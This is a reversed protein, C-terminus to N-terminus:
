TTLHRLLGSLYRHDWGALKRKAKKGVKLSKDKNLLNLTIHRLISLNAAANKTRARCHDECFAVDLVWHLQNEVSWHQRIYAQIKKADPALSSIYYRREEIFVGNKEICAEILIISQLGDWKPILAQVYVGSLVYCSRKEIRGHGADLDEYYRYGIGDFNKIKAENFATRIMEYLTNQNSKVALIYDSGCDRIKKAINKQCGMADISVVSGRLNLMELLKPIATIENSKEETKFQGLVLQNETCWANVMHIARQSKPDDRSGRLSKGDIAVLTGEKPTVSTQVWQIFCRQFQEHDLESFLRGFTDHSPIGFPLDLFTSLWEKKCEGFLAIDVWNDAGCITALLTIVLISTLSHRKNHNDLRPDNLANFHKMFDESIDM